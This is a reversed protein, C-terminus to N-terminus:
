LLLERVKHQLFLIVIIRQEFGKVELLFLDDANYGVYRRLKLTQNLWFETRRDETEKLDVWSRVLQLLYFLDDRGLYRLDMFIQYIVIHLFSIALAYVIGKSSERLEPISEYLLHLYHEIHEKGWVPTFRRVKHHSM